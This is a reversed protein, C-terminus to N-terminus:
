FSFFLSLQKSMSNGQGFTMRMHGKRIKKVYNEEVELEVRKSETDFLDYILMKHKKQQEM